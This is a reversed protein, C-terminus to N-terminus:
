TRRKELLWRTGVCLLGMAPSSIWLVGFFVRLGVSDSRDMRMPMEGLFRALPTFALLLLGPPFIAGIAFTRQYGRGYILVTVLVPVMAMTVFMLIPIALADPMQFMVACVVAVATTLWLLSRLSFQTLRRPFQLPHDPPIQHDM